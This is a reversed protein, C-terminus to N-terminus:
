EDGSDAYILDYCIAGWDDYLLDYNQNEVRTIFKKRLGNKNIEPFEELFDEIMDNKNIIGDDDGHDILYDIILDFDIPCDNETLYDTSCLNNQGNIWWWNDKTSFKGNEIMQVFGVLGESQIFTTGMEEFDVMAYVKNDPYDNEDCVKNWLYALDCNNLNSLCEFISDKKM